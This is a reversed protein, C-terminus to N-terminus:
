PKQFCCASIERSGAFLPAPQECFYRRNMRKLMWFVANGEFFPDLLSLPLQITSSPHYYVFESRGYSLQISRRVVFGCTPPEFGEPRAVIFTQILDEIFGFVYRRLLCTGLTCVAEKSCFLRPMRSCKIRHSGAYQKNTQVLCRLYRPKKDSRSLSYTTRNFSPSLVSM